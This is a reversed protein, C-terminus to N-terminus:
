VRSRPYGNPYRISIGSLVPCTRIIQQSYPNSDRGFQVKLESFYNLHLLDIQRQGFCFRAHTTTKKICNRVDQHWQSSCYSSSSSTASCIQVFLLFGLFRMTLHNKCINQGLHFWAASYHYEAWDDSSKHQPLIKRRTTMFTCWWAM